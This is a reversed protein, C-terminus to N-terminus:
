LAYKYLCFGEIHIICGSEHKWVYLVSIYPIYGPLYKIWSSVLTDNSSRCSASCVPVYALRCLGNCCEVIYKGKYMITVLLM